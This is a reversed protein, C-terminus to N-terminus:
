LEEGAAAVQIGEGDRSGEWVTIQEDGLIVSNAEHLTCFSPELNLTTHRELRSGQVKFRSGLWISLGKTRVRARMIARPKRSKPKTLPTKGAAGVSDSAGGFSLM